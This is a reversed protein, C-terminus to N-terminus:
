SRHCFMRSCQWRSWDRVDVRLNYYNAGPCGFSGVFILSSVQVSSKTSKTRVQKPGLYQALYEHVSLNATANIDQFYTASGWAGGEIDNKDDRSFNSSPELSDM